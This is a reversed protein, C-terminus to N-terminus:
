LPLLLNSQSSVIERISSSVEAFCTPDDAQWHQRLCPSSYTRRSTVSVAPCDVVKGAYERQKSFVTATVDGWGMTDAPKGIGIWKARPSTNEIRRM